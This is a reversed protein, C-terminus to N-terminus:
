EGRFQLELLVDGCREQEEGEVKSIPRWARHAELDMLHVLPVHLVGLMVDPESWSKARAWLEVCLQTFPADDHVYTGTEDIHGGSLM